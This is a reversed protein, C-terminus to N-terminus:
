AMPNRGPEVRESVRADYSDDITKDYNDDLNSYRDYTDYDCDSVPYFDDSSYSDWSWSRTNNDQEVPSDFLTDRIIQGSLNSNNVLSRFRVFPADDPTRSYLRQLEAVSVDSNSRVAPATTLFDRREIWKSEQRELDFIGARITKLEDVNHMLWYHKFFYDANLRSQDVWITAFHPKVKRSLAKFTPDEAISDKTARSKINAIARLFLKE